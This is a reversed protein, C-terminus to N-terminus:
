SWYRVAKIPTNYDYNSIKIGGKPYPQSNSAHVIQGDGIYIAVHSAYNGSGYFILDGPQLSSLDVTVAKTYGYTNIYSSSPGNMQDNAIRLLKFGFHSFVTQVFGSCDAGKTLSTGGYVYPNGVYQLAYNVIKSGTSTDDIKISKEKTIVGKSNITYEKTGVAITTSVAMKGDSYFYYKTNGVAQLGTQMVGSNDFYYTYGGITKLGTAMKGNSDFYYKQSNVTQWGATQVTTTRAGTSDVYYKGVWTSVAMKGTSQFYYFKSQYKVWINKVAIGDRKFFYTDSGIKKFSNTLKKGTKKDFYYTNGSVTTLGTAITGSSTAYYMKSLLWKKKQLVGSKSFYYRKGNLTVFGTTLKGTDPNLYYTKKNVTVLGTVRAGDEGVYMGDIFTNKQLVGSKNFYYYKKNYKVWGTQRVGSSSLYYTKGSLTLWGTKAAGDSGLYRNQYWQNKLIAGNKHKVAYYTKGGVTIWGTQLVGTSPHLYYTKGDVTLWGKVLNGKEDYYYTKNDKTIWYINKQIGTYKGNAGVWKGNIWTNTARSGDAQFYYNKYWQGVVLKGSSLAYYYKGNVKIWGTQMVGKSNFYYKSKDITQFGTQMIGKSNFYYWKKNIKKLGTVYGPSASQTYITGSSTTKWAANASVAPSALTLLGTLSLLLLTKRKNMTTIGRMFFM